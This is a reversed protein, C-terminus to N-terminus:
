ALVEITLVTASGSAVRICGPMSRALAVFLPLADAGPASADFPHAAAADAVHRLRLSALARPTRAPNLLLAIGSAPHSHVVEALAGRAEIDYIAFLVPTAEAYAEVAAEFLGAAFSGHWASVANSPAQCGTAVTWYGAPANHVSNHFRTPSTELPANALTTCLAETTALDGHISAFVCPVGAPDCGAMACAQAAVECAILVPEPARRRETAALVSAAPRTADAAAPLGDLERLLAAAAPWNAAGASWWGIGEIHVDLADMNM